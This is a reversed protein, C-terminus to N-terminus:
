ELIFDGNSTFSFEQLVSANNIVREQVIYFENATTFNSVKKEVSQRALVELKILTGAMPLSTAVAIPFQHIVDEEDRICLIATYVKKSNGRNLINTFMIIASMVFLIVAAVMNGSMYASVGAYTGWVTLVWGLTKVM